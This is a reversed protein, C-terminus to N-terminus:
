SIGSEHTNYKQPPTTSWWILVLLLAQLPMRAVLIWFPIQFLEPHQLMYFNAPTVALTVAFLGFGSARRTSSFLLGFAGLLEFVGSIIVAARPWAIYPPVIRMEIDTAVFHAIGGIFFWCFVVALGIRKGTSSLSAGSGNRPNSLLRARWPSLLSRTSASCIRSLLFCGVPWWM